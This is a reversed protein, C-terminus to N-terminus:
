RIFAQVIRKGPGDQMQLAAIDKDIQAIVENLSKLYRDHDAGGPTNPRAGAPILPDDWNGSLRAAMIAQRTQIADWQTAQLAAIADALTPL